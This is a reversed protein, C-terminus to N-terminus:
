KKPHYFRKLESIGQMLLSLKPKEDTLRNYNEDYVKYNGFTDIVVTNTDTILAINKRDGALLWNRENDQKLLNLGSSYSEPSTTTKLFSEMLTPALDLHSSRSMILEPEVNPWHILMPVRLQYQSFNTSSGWSNTNTEDFEMGHNSTIIVITKEWDPSQKLASLVTKLQQDTKKVAKRYNVEFASQDSNETSIPSTADYESVSTLELYSFWPKNPTQARFWDHWQTIAKSDSIKDKPKGIEGKTFIIQQYIPSTFDDGSFLGFQYNRKHLETLIPSEIESNRFNDVYNGPLGYFLGFLSTPNNSASYHNNFNLNNQAFRTLNPTDTHNLTDARLSDIMIIQLNYGTQKTKFRIPELPYRMAEKAGGTGEEQIQKALADRDIFGHKELFSRATMPYSLPFTARQATVPGYASADAWTHILHSGIFAVAFTIAFPRGVHKHALKRLKNWVWESLSLQLLFMVPVLIFLYQWQTNLNSKDNNLLMDWVLPTIHLHLTQYAYTDLLLLTMGATAIIVSLIRMLRQSPTIFTLPFLVLIYFGFVLFGFHGVWNLVLYTQGLLTEPWPSQAIYRTGILMAAIINFFSFWHGWTILKSVKEGYTNGSDVM